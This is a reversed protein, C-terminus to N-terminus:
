ILLPAKSHVITERVPHSSQPCFIGSTAGIYHARDPFSPFALKFVRCLWMNGVFKVLVDIILRSKGCNFSQVIFCEVVLLVGSPVPKHLKVTIWCKHVLQSALKFEEWNDSTEKPLKLVCHATVTQFGSACHWPEAMSEARRTAM